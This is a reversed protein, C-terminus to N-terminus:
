DRAGGGGIRFRRKMWVVLALHSAAIAIIGSSVCLVVLRGIAEIEPGDDTNYLLAPLPRMTRDISHWLLAVGMALLFFDFGGLLNPGAPRGRVTYALGVFAVLCAVDVCYWLPLSIADAQIAFLSLSFVGIVLLLHCFVTVPAAPAGNVKRAPNM